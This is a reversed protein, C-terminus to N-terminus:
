SPLSTFRKQNINKGVKMKIIQQKDETKDIEISIIPSSLCLSDLIKLNIEITDIIKIIHPSFISPVLM